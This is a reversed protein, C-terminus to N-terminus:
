GGKVEEYGRELAKINANTGEEGLKKLFMERIKEKLKDISIIGTVKILAGLTAINPINKGLLDLAIRTADVTYIKGKFNTKKRVYEADKGTNVILIGEDTLGETVNVTDLLTPDIVIVVDPSLVPQYTRIKEDSIRVFTRMPAGSREPGYEPFAQIYKGDELAAEAVLQAASKAGQGGRGHFRIEFIKSM